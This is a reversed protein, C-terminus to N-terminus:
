FRSTFSELVVFWMPLYGAFVVPVDGVPMIVMYWECSRCAVTCDLVERRDVSAVHQPLHGQACFYLAM